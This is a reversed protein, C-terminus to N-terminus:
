LLWKAYNAAIIATAAPATKMEVITVHTDKVVELVNISRYLSYGIYIFFIFIYLIDGEPLLM